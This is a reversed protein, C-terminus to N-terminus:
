VLFQKAIARLATDGVFNILKPIFAFKDKCVKFGYLEGCYQGTACDTDKDCFCDDLLACHKVRSDIHLESSAGTIRKGFKNLFVGNPDYKQVIATFRSLNPYNKQEMSATHFAQGCM